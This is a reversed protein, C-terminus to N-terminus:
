GINKNVLSALTKSIAGFIFTYGSSTEVIGSAGLAKVKDLNVAENKHLKVSVKSLTGEISKINNLGGVADEFDKVNFPLDVEKDLDHSKNINLRVLIFLVVLIILGVIAGLYLPNELITNM